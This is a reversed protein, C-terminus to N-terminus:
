VTATIARKIGLTMKVTTATSGAFTGSITITDTGTTITWDNGQASPTSLVASGDVILKHDSTIGPANFTQPLSSFAPTTVEYVDTIAAAINQTLERNSKAYPAYTNDLDSSLRLMPYYKENTYSGHTSSDIYLWLKLTTDSDISLSAAQILRTANGSGIQYYIRHNVNTDAEVRGDSLIYQGAKITGNYIVCNQETLKVTGNITIVGDSDITVTGNTQTIDKLINKLLNKAELKNVNDRIGTSELANDTLEQNTRAYPQYTNDIEYWSKDCIMATVTANTYDAAALTIIFAFYDSGNASFEYPTSLDSGSILNTGNKRFIFTINSDSSDASLVYNGAPLVFSHDDNVPCLRVNSVSNATGNIIVTQGDYSVKTDATGAKIRATLDLLNKVGNKGMEQFILQSADSIKENAQSDSVLKNSSSAGAPFAAYMTDIKQSNYLGAFKNLAGTTQNVTNASM